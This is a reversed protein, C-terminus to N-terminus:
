ALLGAIQIITRQVLIAVPELFAGILGFSILLILILWGYPEIQDIWRNQPYPLLYYFVKSGDLPPVPLLNFVALYVNFVLARWLIEGLVFIGATWQLLLAAALAILLNAAPGALAIWIMDTKPQRLNWVNVEVPRAWGFRFVFLMILGLWDIHSAPNLTLRGKYKPSPDGLRVAVWAHAYEHLVIAALLGPIGYLLDQWTM